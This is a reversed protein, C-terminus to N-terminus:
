DKKLTVIGDYTVTLQRNKSNNKSSIKKERLIVFYTQLEITSEFACKIKHALMREEKGGEYVSLIHVDFSVGMKDFAVRENLRELVVYPYSADSSMYTRVKAHDTLKESLYGYFEQFWHESDM